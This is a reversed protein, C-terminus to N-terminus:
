GAPPTGPLEPLIEYGFSAGNRADWLTHGQVVVIAARGLEQGLELGAGNSLDVFLQLHDLISHGADAGKKM